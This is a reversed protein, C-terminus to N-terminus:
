QKSINYPIFISSDKKLDLGRGLYKNLTTRFINVPSISPYLGSYDHDPYYIATFNDFIMYGEEVATFINRYGHDGMIIIISKPNNAKIHTVLDTIVKDAFLVQQYFASEPNNKKQTRIEPISKLNGTSDFIFPSHPLMFHAYTFHPQRKVTSAEKVKEVTINLEKQRTQYEKKELYSVWRDTLKYHTLSWGLDKYMRGPLTKYFFHFALLDNFFSKIGPQTQQLSVPQILNAIYGQLTLIRILPNNEISRSGRKLMATEGGEFIQEDTFYNMNMCSNVSLMTINYNSQSNAAVYFHHKVLFSDLETNDLGWHKRIGGSSPMADFVLFFINPKLSDNITKPTFQKYSDFRNDLLSYHNKNNNFITLTIEFLLSAILVSHIFRVTKAPIVTRTKLKRYIFFFMLLASPLLFKYSTLFGNGLLSKLFDHLPGFTFLFVAMLLTFFAAVPKYRFILKCFFYILIIASAAGFFNLIIQIYTFFGAFERWGNVIFLV